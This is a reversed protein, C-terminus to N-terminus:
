YLLEVFVRNSVDIGRMTLAIKDETEILLEQEVLKKIKEGYCSQVDVGFYKQFEKKSIGEKKRLGLFFFEEMQEETSLTQFEERIVELENSHEVYVNWEDTNKFRVNEVLSSSGLGLGLYDVREWYGLNHRCEKGEKAYNSIEYQYYGAAELVKGTEYYIKREETESPLEKEQPAGEGYMTAFPTGEEIILSYVSIHEPDLAIISRLSSSFIEWTQNPIASMLDVNINEFGCERALRYSELFEEYTHIRGLLQLEDNNASQLGFSIRNIGAVKYQELKEKTVTGPNIEMTIEADEAILFRERVATMIGILQEGELLSPTGGGFFVSSVRRQCDCDQARIEKELARVYEEIKEKSGVSSLFDCYLCKRACFPFHIYLEITKRMAVEM